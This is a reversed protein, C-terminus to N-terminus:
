QIVEKRYEDNRFIAAGPAEGICDEGCDPNEVDDPPRKPMGGIGNAVAGVEAGDAGAGDADGKLGKWVVAAAVTACGVDVGGDEDGNSDTNLGGAAIAAPPFMNPFFSSGTAARAPTLAGPSNLLAAVSAADGLSLCDLKNM